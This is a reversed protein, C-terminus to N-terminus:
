LSIVGRRRLEVLRAEIAGTTRGQRNAMWKVAKKFDRHLGAEEDDSWFSGANPMQWEDPCDDIPPMDGVAHRMLFNVKNILDKMVRATYGNFEEVKADYRAAFVEDAVIKVLHTISNTKDRNSNGM